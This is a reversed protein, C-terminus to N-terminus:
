KYLRKVAELLHEHDVGDPYDEIMVIAIEAGVARYLGPQLWAGEEYIVNMRKGLIDMSKTCEGKVVVCWRDIEFEGKVSNLSGPLHQLHKLAASTQTYEPLIPISQNLDNRTGEQNLLLGSEEDTFEEVEQKSLIHERIAEMAQWLEEFCETERLQAGVICYKIPNKRLVGKIGEVINMDPTGYIHTDKFWVIAYQIHSPVCEIASLIRTANGFFSYGNVVVVRLSHALKRQLYLEREPKRYRTIIETDSTYALADGSFGDISISGKSAHNLANISAIFLGILLGKVFDLVSMAIMTCMIVLSEMGRSLLATTIAEYFLDAGLYM